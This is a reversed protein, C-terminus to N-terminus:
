DSPAGIDKLPTHASPPPPTLLPRDRALLGLTYRAASGRSGRGGPPKGSRAAGTLVRVPEPAQATPAAVEGNGGGDLGM